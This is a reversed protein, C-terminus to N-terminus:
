LFWRAYQKRTDVHVFGPYLGIGKINIKRAKILREVVAALQKPTYSKATIDGAKAKLHQSKPAGGISRNYTITRYGSNVHLPEGITDRIVQLNAALERVNPLLEAPVKTGDRCHFESLHFNKTLQM